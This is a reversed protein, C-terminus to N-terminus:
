TVETLPDTLEWPDCGVYQSVGKYVSIKLKSHMEYVPPCGINKRGVRSKFYKLAPLFM